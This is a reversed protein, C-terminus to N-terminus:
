KDTKRLGYKEGIWSTDAKKSLGKVFSLWNQDSFIVRIICQQFPDLGGSNALDILAEKYEKEKTSTLMKNLYRFWLAAKGRSSTSAHKIYEITNM